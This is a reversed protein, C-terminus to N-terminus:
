INQLQSCIRNYCGIKDDLGLNNVAWYVAGAAPPVKLLTYAFGCGPNDKYLKEKITDLLLPHGGKVFVSGAFIVNIEEGGRNLELEEIMCSIGNAYSTGCDRLIGSAVKDNMKAAEFLMKNCDGTNFGGKEIEEYIKDIFDHKDNIGLKEMFVPTLCTREGRRFLERYVASVAMEGLMGGGGFDASIFGVGGIQLMRGAKNIGALTSGSGNIACVGVGAPSGAPIGLFADNALTFNIFGIKKIIESVIGHQKKTDVGAIGFVASTIQGAKLNNKNLVQFVFQELEEHFQGFSGPLVEHNLPGWHGFDILAGNTDFLALHSKTAGIDAGIVYDM